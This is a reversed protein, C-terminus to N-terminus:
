GADVRGGHPIRRPDEGTEPYGRPDDGDGPAARIGTLEEFTRRAQADREAEWRAPPASAPIRRGIATAKSIWGPNYSLLTADAIGRERLLRVIGRLNEPTDTIGPVLPVRCVLRTPGRHALAALNALILRNDAGTFRRHADPDALKLDFYVLDILDLVGRMRALDFHGCTELAIHVGEGALAACVEELYRPHLGPEGGSFTVGGASADWFPRDRLLEEVLEAPPMARGIARLAVAPCAEACAGCGTCLRRDIREQRHLRIAGVPCARVCAACEVCRRADFSVQPAPSILEPNHCWLCALPCGKLFVTTRIGPGDDLAFRHIEAVLPQIM